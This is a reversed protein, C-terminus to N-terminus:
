VRANKVQFTLQGRLMTTGAALNAEDVRYFDIMTGDKEVLVQGTVKTGADSLVFTNTAQRKAILGYPLRMRVLPAPTGGVTGTIEFVVTCLDGAPSKSLMLTRPNTASVAVVFTQSASGVFMSASPEIDAFSPVKHYGEASHERDWVTTLHAWWADLQQFLEGLTGRTMKPLNV